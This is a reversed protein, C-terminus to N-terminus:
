NLQVFLRDHGVSVSMRKGKVEDAAYVAKWHQPDPNRLNAAVGLFRSGRNLKVEVEESEGPFLVVTQKAGVLEGALVQDDNVWFVDAPTRLFTANSTLQYVVDTASNGGNLDQQGSLTLEIPGKCGVATLLLVATSGAIIQIGRRSGLLGM